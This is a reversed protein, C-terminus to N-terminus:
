NNYGFPQPTAAMTPRVWHICAESRANAMTACVQYPQDSGHTIWSMDSRRPGDQVIQPSTQPNSRIDLRLTHLSAPSPVSRFTPPAPIVVVLNPQNFLHQLGPLSNRVHAGVQLPLSGATRRARSSRRATFATDARTGTTISISSPQYADASRRLNNPTPDNRLNEPGNSRLIWSAKSLPTPTSSTLTLTTPCGNRANLIASTGRILPPKTPKPMLQRVASIRSHV